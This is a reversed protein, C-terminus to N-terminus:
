EKIQLALDQLLLMQKKLKNKPAMNPWKFLILLFDNGYIKVFICSNFDFDEYLHLIEDITDRDNTLKKTEEKFYLGGVKFVNSIREHNYHLLDKKTMLVFTENEFENKIASLNLRGKIFANLVKDSLDKAKNSYSDRTYILVDSLMRLMIFVIFVHFYYQPISFLYCIVSASLLNFILLYVLRSFGGKLDINEWIKVLAYLFFLIGFAGLRITDIQLLTKFDTVILPIILIMIVINIRLLSKENEELELKKNTLLAFIIFLFNLVYFAMLPLLVLKNVGFIIFGLALSVSSTASFIKLALPLHRRLMLEVLLFLSFPIISSVVLIFTEFTPGFDYLYNLGRALCLTSLLTLLFLLRKKLGGSKESMKMFVAYYILAIATIINIVGDFKQSFEIIM